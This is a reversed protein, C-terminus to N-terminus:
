YEDDSEDDQDLAQNLLQTIEGLEMDLFEHEATTEITLIEDGDLYYGSRTTLEVDPNDKIHQRARLAEALMERLEEDSCKEMPKLLNM